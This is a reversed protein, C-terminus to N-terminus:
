LIRFTYRTGTRHLYRLQLLHRMDKSSNFIDKLVDPSMPLISHYIRKARREGYSEM